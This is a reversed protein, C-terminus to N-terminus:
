RTGGRRWARAWAGAVAGVVALSAAVGDAEGKEFDGGSVAMQNTVHALCLVKKDRARAFAYLAAAEMEVALIGRARSAGIATETERFPADTTWTAGRHVPPGSHQLAAMADAVLVPDAEAFDSPPLYHYSTGEDRLARDIVVFYPPAGLSTIQGASTVSVLFRCGSAFLEEAVLVAFAAGVACGIIGFRMGAHEFEFLETHYCAWGPSTEARGARRLARVIDGDPDLLCIEPVDAPPLNKQRRAERLLNAPEFVSPAAHDKDALIPALHSPNRGRLMLAKDWGAEPGDLRGISKRKYRGAGLGISRGGGGARVGRFDGCDRRM